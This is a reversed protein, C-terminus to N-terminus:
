LQCGPNAATRHNKDYVYTQASSANSPTNIYALMEPDAGYDHILTNIFQNDATSLEREDVMPDTPHTHIYGVITSGAPLSIHAHDIQDPDGSTFPDSEYLQGDAAKYIFGGWENGDHATLGALEDGLWKAENNLQHEDVGEPAYHVCPTDKAEETQQHPDPGADGGGGGGGGGDGYDGYDGFDGWDGYDGPNGTVVIDSNDGGAVLELEDLTLERM